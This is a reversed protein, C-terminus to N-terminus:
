DPAKHNIIRYLSWGISLLGAILGVVVSIHELALWISTGAAIVSAGDGVTKPNM